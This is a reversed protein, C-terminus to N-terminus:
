RHNLWNSWNGWNPWNNWNNWNGWNFWQALRSGSKADDPLAQAMAARMCEVRAELLRRDREVHAQVQAAGGLLGAAAVWLVLRRLPAFGPRTTRTTTSM